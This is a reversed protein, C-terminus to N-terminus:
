KSPFCILLILIAVLKVFDFYRVVSSCVFVFFGLDFDDLEVRLSNSRTRTWLECRYYVFISIQYNQTTLSRSVFFTIGCSKQTVNPNIVCLLWFPIFDNGLIRMNEFRSARKCCIKILLGQNNEASYDWKFVKFWRILYKDEVEICLNLFFRYTIQAFWAVICKWLLLNLDLIGPSYFIARFKERTKWCYESYGFHNFIRENSQSSEEM